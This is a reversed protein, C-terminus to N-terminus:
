FYKDISLKLEDIKDIHISSTFIKQIEQLIIKVVEEDKNNRDQKLLL